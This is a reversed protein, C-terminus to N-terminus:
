NNRYKTASIDFDADKDYDLLVKAPRQSWAREMARVEARLQTLSKPHSADCEANYLLVFESHRRIM